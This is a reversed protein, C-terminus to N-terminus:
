SLSKKGQFFIRPQKANKMEPTAKLAITRSVKKGETALRALALYSWSEFEASNPLEPWCRVAIGDLNHEEILHKM